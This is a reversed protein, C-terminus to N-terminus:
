TQDSYDYRIVEEKLALEAKSLQDLLERLKRVEITLTMPYNDPNGAPLALMPTIAPLLKVPTKDPVKGMPLRVRMYDSELMLWEFAIALIVITPIM